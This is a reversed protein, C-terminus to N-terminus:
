NILTTVNLGEIDSLKVPNLPDISMTFPFYGRPTIWQKSTADITGGFQYFTGFGTISPPYHTLKYTNTGQYIFPQDESTVPNLPNYHDNKAVRYGTNTEPNYLFKMSAETSSGGYFVVDIPVSTATVNTGEFVAVGAGNGSNALLNSTISGFGDGEIKSYNFSRIWNASSIDLTNPGNILKSAGGVYFFEGKKVSGSILNFKYTRMGGAAWGAIPGVGADPTNSTANNCTVVAVPSVEFNINRTALFQIYEYNGDSGAADNAFGTIIIPAPGLKPGNPDFPLIKDTIDSYVRPWLEVQKGGTEKDKLFIIGTFSANEPLKQSAFDANEETHMIISDGGNVLNRNGSFTDTPKPAPSVTASKIKVLTSEFDQPKFNIAFSSTSTPEKVQGVAAVTIDKDTLGKIQMSGKVRTLTKGSINVVLSDGFKYNRANELSLIIGRTRKRRTEQMVVMGAPINLSDPNSVVVGVIKGAEKLNNSNLTVDADKYLDRLEEISIIPSLEGNAYDHKECASWFIVGLLGLIYIFKRKM